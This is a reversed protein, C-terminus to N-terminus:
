IDYEITRCVHIVDCVGDEGWCNMEEIDDYDEGIRIFSFPKDEGYLKSLFKEITAVDEFITRWKICNWSILVIGADNDFRITSAEDLITEEWKLGALKEKLEEYDEKKICLAVDSRYGM